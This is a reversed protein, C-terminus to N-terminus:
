EIMDEKEVRQEGKKRTDKLRFGKRNTKLSIQHSHSLLLQQM